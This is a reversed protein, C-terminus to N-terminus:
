EWSQQWKLTWRSKESHKGSNLCEEFEPLSLSLNASLQMIPPSAGPSRRGSAVKKIQFDDAHTRDM